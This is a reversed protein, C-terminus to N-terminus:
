KPFRVHHYYCLSDQHLTGYIQSAPKAYKSKLAFTFGRPDRVGAILAQGLYYNAACHANLGAGMIFNSQSISDGSLVFTTKSAPAEKVIEQAELLRIELVTVTGELVRVKEDGFYLAIEQARQNAEKPAAKLRKYAKPSLQMAYYSQLGNNMRRAQFGGSEQSSYQFGQEDVPGEAVFLLGYATAADQEAKIGLAKRLPSHTGDAAIIVDYDGVAVLDGGLKIQPRGDREALGQFERNYLINGGLTLVRQRLVLELEGIVVAGFYDSYETGTGSAGFLQEFVGYSRLCNMTSPSLNFAQRRGPYTASYPSHKEVITVAGGLSLIELANLCGVPGAGIILFNRGTLAQPPRPAGADVRGRIADEYTAEAPSKHHECHYRRYSSNEKVFDLFSERQRQDFTELSCPILLALTLVFLLLQRMSCVM